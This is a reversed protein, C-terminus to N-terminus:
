RILRASAKKFQFQIGALFDYQDFTFHSDFAPGGQAFLCYHEWSPTMLGVAVSFPKSDQFVSEGRAEVYRTWNAYTDQLGTGVAVSVAQAFQPDGAHRLVAGVTGFFHGAGSRLGIESYASNGSGIYASFANDRAINLIGVQGFENSKAINVVGYQVGKVNEAYNALGIQTGWVDAAINVTGIQAGTLDASKNAAGAQVGRMDKSENIAGIQAGWPVDGSRNITSFQAGDLDGKISNYIGSIQAGKFQGESVNAIGSITTGNVDGQWVAVGDGIAVGKLAYWKGYLLTLDFNHIAQVGKANSDMPSFLAFGMPVSTTAKPLEAIAVSAVSLIFAAILHKLM